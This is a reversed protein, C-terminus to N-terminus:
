YERIKNFSFYINNNVDYIDSSMVKIITKKYSLEYLYRDGLFSKNKITGQYKLLDNSIAVDEYYVVLKNNSLYLDNFAEKDLINAIELFKITEINSPKHYFDYSNKFEIVTHNHIFAIRSALVFAEEKDHTVMLISQKYKLNIDKLLSQMEKRLNTDLKNFPEDLLLLKPKVILARALAVRQKEGGSLQNPYKNLHQEIQLQNAVEIIDEKIKDKSYKLMKLGFAINDYVSMHEFLLIDQDVLVIDRDQIKANTIDKNDLFIVGSDFQHMACIGNLLMSKGAGSAGLLVVIEADKIDLNIDKLIVQKAIKKNINCLKLKDM